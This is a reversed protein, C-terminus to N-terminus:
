LLPVLALCALWLGANIVLPRDAFVDRSPEGGAAHQALLHAYRCLAFIAFPVTTVALVPAYPPPGSLVFLVYSTLTAALLVAMLQDLLPVSYGALAPRHAASRGARGAAALEHRRKGLSLLLCSCYVCIILAPNFPAAVALCGAVARLVFGLAVVSVDVLPLNKLVLCYALTLLLYAVLVLRVAPASLAAGLVAVALAGSGLLLAGPGGVAGGALPRHRKVPHLRDRERDLWDNLVYVAASAATFALVAALAPGLHRLLAAPDAALPVVLVFANKVWQRPRLLALAAGGGRRAPAV